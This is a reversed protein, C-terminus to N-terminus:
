DGCQEAAAEMEAMMDESPGYQQGFAEANVAAQNVASEQEATPGDRGIQSAPGARMLCEANLIREITASAFDSRSQDRVTMRIAITAATGEPSPELALAPPSMLPLGFLALTTAF